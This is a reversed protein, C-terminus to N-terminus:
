RPTDGLAAITQLTTMGFIGVKIAGITVIKNEKM